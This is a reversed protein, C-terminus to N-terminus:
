VFQFDIQKSHLNNYINTDNTIYLDFLLSQKIYIPQTIIFLPFVPKLFTPNTIKIIPITANIAPTIISINVPTPSTIQTITADITILITPILKIICLGM